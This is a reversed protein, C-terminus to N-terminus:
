YVFLENVFEFECHKAVWIWLDYDQFSTLSEDFLGSKEFVRTHLMFLSTSPPCWGNLLLYYVDGRGLSYTSPRIIYGLSDDQSYHLCYVAGVSDPSKNILAIQKRLKEPFWEDDSDLFAIFKGQALKVGTNRAAAGGRNKNRKFYRIREDDFSKVVEETNDASSDDVVIIEFDRYTQQLVSLIARGVLHARNYTPIIVSITPKVKGEMHIFM